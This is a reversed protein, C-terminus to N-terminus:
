RGGRVEFSAGEMALKVLTIAARLEARDKNTLKIRANDEDDLLTRCWDALVTLTRGDIYASTGVEVRSTPVEAAEVSATDQVPEAESRGQTDSM